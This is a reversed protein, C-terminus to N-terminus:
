ARIEVPTGAPISEAIKTVVDNPMRICGNSAKSGILGPNNTGHFAVVPLGDEFLDMAESYGNTALIWPGYAGGPSVGATAADLIENIYFRGIPTPTADTGIVVQTEAILEEDNWVRFVFESLVLEAHFRHESLAVDSARVWGEQHNPRAPLSVKVYEDEKGTVVMTLPQGFFTPNEYVYGLDNTSVGASNLGERPIPPVATAAFAAPQVAADTAAPDEPKTLFVQLEPVAATAVETTNDPVPATATTVEGSLQSGSLRFGDGADSGASGCAAATITLLAAVAFATFRSRSRSWTDM